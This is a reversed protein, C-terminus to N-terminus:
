GVGLLLGRSAQTVTPVVVSTGGSWNDITGASLTTSYAVGPNGTAISSDTIDTGVRVNNRYVKLTSGTAEFKLVDGSTWAQTFQGLLTHTGALWKSISVNNTAKNCVVCRYFTADSTSIRIAVGIGSQDGTGTIGSLAAQSYQDATWSGTNYYECQDSTYSTPAGANSVISFGAGHGGGTRPTWNTGLDASNARTFDDTATVTGGSLGFTWTPDDGTIVTTGTRSTEDLSGILDEVPTAVSTQNLEWLATPSLEYISQTTLASGISEFDADTLERAFFAAVALRFNKFATSGDKRGFETLTWANADETSVSVGSNAHTWSGSNLIKRHGRAVGGGGVLSLGLIQWDSTSVGVTIGTAGDVQSYHAMVGPSAGDAMCFISRTSTTKNLSVYGGSSSGVVPKLVAVISRPEDGPTTSAGGLRIFDDVGDFERIAM